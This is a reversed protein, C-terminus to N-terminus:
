RERERERKRERARARSDRQIKGEGTDRYIERVRRRQEGQTREREISHETTTLRILPFGGAEGGKVELM